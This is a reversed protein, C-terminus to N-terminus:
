IVFAIWTIPVTRNFKYFDKIHNIRGQLFHNFSSSGVEIFVSSSISNTSYRSINEDASIFESVEGSSDIYLSLM